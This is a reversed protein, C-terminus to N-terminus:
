DTGRLVFDGFGTTQEFVFTRGPYEWVEIVNGKSPFRRDKSDPPGFKIYVEGQDTEHGNPNGPNRFETFAFDVRRYYETMLENYVTNPTPDRSEWFARFKEEKEKANGSKLEKLQTESIIFQMNNLAIDLNLLSAPMNPWYSRFFSKAVPKDSDSSTVDIVYASNEFEKNPISLLVYSFGLESDAFKLTPDEGETLVPIVDSIVDSQSITKSYVSEAKTTDRRGMRAKNVNLTYETDASYNPIRILTKFDKGFLVSEDMNMLPMNEGSSSNKVFYIEGAPKSDWDWIRINQRNSNRERTSEMMSLQLVYNYEGPELTNSLSGSAYLSKSETDEFTKTYLTDIWLDRTATGVETASRKRSIKGKYIESNLRVITFYEMGEPAVIDDSPSIKKYPLFDNDFRFILSLNANGDETPLIIEDIFVQPANARNMLATYSVRNPRQALLPLAFLLLTIVLIFRKQM